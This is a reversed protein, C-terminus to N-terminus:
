PLAMLPQQNSAAISASNCCCAMDDVGLTM